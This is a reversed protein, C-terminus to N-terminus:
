KSRSRESQYNNRVYVKYDRNQFTLHYQEGLLADTAQGAASSMEHFRIM